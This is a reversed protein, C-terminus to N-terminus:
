KAGEEPITTTFRQLFRLVGSITAVIAAGKMANLDFVGSQATQLAAVTVGAVFPFLIHRLTSKWDKGSPKALADSM